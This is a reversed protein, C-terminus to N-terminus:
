GYIRVNVYKIRFIEFPFSTDHHYELQLLFAVRQLFFYGVPAM